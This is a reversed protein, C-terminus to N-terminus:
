VDFSFSYILTHKYSLNRVQQGYDFNGTVSTAGRVQYCPRLFGIIADATQTALLAQIAELSPRNKGKGHAAFGQQTRLECTGHLATHLESM